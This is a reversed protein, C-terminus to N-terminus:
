FFRKWFANIAFAMKFKWRKKVRGKHYKKPTNGLYLPPGPSRFKIHFKPPWQKQGQFGSKKKALLSMKVGLHVSPPPPGPHGVPKPFKGLCDWTKKTAAWITMPAWWSSSIFILSLILKIIIDATSSLPHHRLIQNIREWNISMARAWRWGRFWKFHSNFNKIKLIMREWNIVWNRMLESESNNKQTLFSFIPCMKNLM